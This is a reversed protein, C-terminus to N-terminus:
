VEATGSWFGGLRDPDLPPECTEAEVGLGRRARALERDLPVARRPRPHVVHNASRPEVVDASAIVGHRGDVKAPHERVEQLLGRAVCPVGVDQALENVSRRTPLAM